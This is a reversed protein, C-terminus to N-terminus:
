GRETAPRCCTRLWGPARCCRLPGTASRCLLRSQRSRVLTRTLTTANGSGDTATVRVDYTGAAYTHSVSAATATAGDGFSWAVVSVPSWVDTAAASM